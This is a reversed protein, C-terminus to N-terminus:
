LAMLFICILIWYTIAGNGSDVSPLVVYQLPNSWRTALYCGQLCPGVRLLLPPQAKRTRPSTVCRHTTTLHCTNGTILKLEEATYKVYNKRNLSYDTTPLLYGRSTRLQPLFCSTLIHLNLTHNSSKIHITTCHYQSHLETLSNYNRHWLDTLVLASLSLINTHLSQLNHIDATINNTTVVQLHGIFGIVLGFGTKLWESV